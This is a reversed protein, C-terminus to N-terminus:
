AAEEHTVGDADVTHHERAIQDGPFDSGADEAPDSESFKARAKSIAEQVAPKQMNQAIVPDSSVLADIAAISDCEALKEALYTGLTRKPTADRPAEVLPKVTFPKRNARTATLAMTVPKEIHSMHSIRIGGVEMGGYKVGEDRYVTMSRGVYANGDAGWVHVLVRRMSKCPKFPQGNDAEYNLTVPQEARPDVTVKNIKLTMPGGILSDANLQDSKAIITALMNM